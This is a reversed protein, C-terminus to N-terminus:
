DHAALADSVLPAPWAASRRQINARLDCEGPSNTDCCCFCTKSEDVFCRGLGGRATERNEDGDEAAPRSGGNAPPMFSALELPLSHSFLHGRESLHHAQHMPVAVTAAMSLGQQDLDIISLSPRM